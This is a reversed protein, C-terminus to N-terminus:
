IIGDVINLIRKVCVDLDYIYILIVSIVNCLSFIKWNSRVIDKFKVLIM